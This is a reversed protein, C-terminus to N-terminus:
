TRGSMRVPDGQLRAWVLHAAAASALAISIWQALSLGLAIAPNIRLFEIFFRAIAALFLYSSFLMGDARRHRRQIWLFAFIAGYAAAEYLPTPHVLVGEPHPWGVIANRYAVGWPLTTVKGWDGDGALHCGIRGIAHGLPIAPAACNFVDLVSLRQRKIWVVAALIGGFFGGYWVFGSGSLLFHLPSRLFSQPNELVLFARAGLLGGIAAWVALSWALDPNMSHRAFEKATLFGSVLFALAMMLGFSYITLPGIQFIVPYM